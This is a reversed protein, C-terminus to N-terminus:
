KGKETSQAKADAIIIRHADSPPDFAFAGDNFSPALNWTLVESHQPRAEDSLTRIVLKRPLPYQGLQIWIQWDIDGQHFAYQECTVGDVTTLGIDVATKIKKADEEDVGWRFLDVLPLDINYRETLKDILEPITPPAPVTAYYNTSQGWITFSKGDYVYLRNADDGTVDVRFRNPRAALLNVKSNSQVIQGDEMVDDTSLDAQVQFSQLTRLYTGMKKLMEIAHPDIGSAPQSEVQKGSKAHAQPAFPTFLIAGSILAAVLFHRIFIRPSTQKTGATPQEIDLAGSYSCRLEEAESNM